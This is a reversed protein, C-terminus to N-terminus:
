NIEVRIQFHAVYPLHPEILENWDFSVMRPSPPPTSSILLICGQELFISGSISFVYNISVGSGLLLTPYDLSQMPMVVKAVLPQIAQPVVHDLSVEGRLIPTPDISSQMPMVVKV